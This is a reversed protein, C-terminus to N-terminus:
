GNHNVPKLIGITYVEELIEKKKAIIKTRHYFAPWKINCKIDPDKTEITRAEIKVYKLKYYGDKELPEVILRCQEKLAIVYARFIVNDM